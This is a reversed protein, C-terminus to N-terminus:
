YTGIAWMYTRGSESRHLPVKSTPGLSSQPPTMAPHFLGQIYPLLDQNLVGLGTRETKESRLTSM